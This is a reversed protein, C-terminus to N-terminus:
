FFHAVGALRDRDDDRLIRVDGAVRGVEDLDRVVREGGRDIQFARRTSSRERVGPPVGVDAVGADELLAVEGRREAVRGDDDPAPHEILPDGGHRQLGPSRQRHVIPAEPLSQQRHPGGGLFRM